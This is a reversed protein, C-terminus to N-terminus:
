KKPIGSAWAAGGGTHGTDTSSAAYGRALATTLAGTTSTATSRAM